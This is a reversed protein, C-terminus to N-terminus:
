PLAGDVRGESKGNRIPVLRPGPFSSEQFSAALLQAKGLRKAVYTVSDVFM